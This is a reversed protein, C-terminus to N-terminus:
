DLINAFIPQFLGNVDVPGCIAFIFDNVAVPTKGRRFFQTDLRYVGCHHIERVFELFLPLEVAIQVGENINIGM